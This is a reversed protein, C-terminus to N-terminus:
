LACKAHSIATQAIVLEMRTTLVEIVREATMQGEMHKVLCSVVLAADEDTFDDGVLSAPDYTSTGSGFPIRQNTAISYKLAWTYERVEEDFRRESDSQRREWEFIAQDNNCLIQNM